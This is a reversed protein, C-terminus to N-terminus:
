GIILSRTKSLRLITHGLAVHNSATVEPLRYTMRAINVVYYARLL